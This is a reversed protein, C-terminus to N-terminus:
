VVGVKFKEYDIISKILFNRNNLQKIIEELFELKQKQISFKINMNIVDEDCSVAEKVDAKLVMKRLPKWGRDRIEEIDMEGRYYENKAKTLKKLEVDLHLLRQKEKMFIVYYKNHLIPINSVDKSIDTLNIDKDKSWEKTIEDIKM